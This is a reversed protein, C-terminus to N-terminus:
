DGKILIAIDAVNTGSPGTVVLSDLQKLIHYSDSNDIYSEIDLSQKEVEICSSSDVIGGAADSSGDIGDTGASLFTFNEGNKCVKQLMLAAAHQNRGGQGSGKVHVTCEGGFVMCQATSQIFKQYMREIMEEVDGLMLEQAVVVDLGLEQASKHAAQLAHTNSALIFHKVRPLATKPTEVLEGNVGRDIVDRITQPMQKLIDSEQLVRQVDFYTSKDAYLPASGISYLDNDIVDSVVLVAGSAQTNQALLGGKISSLHKRVSNIQSIDLGNELMLNTTEQLEQLTIPEKPIEMLASSGGSLLYIYLDEAGCEQMMSVLEQTADISKQTPIPHSGEVLKIYQLDENKNPAIVLGKYIQSGLIAEIEKAMTYAAKGSGFVYINKYLDLDYEYSDITLINAEFKCYEHMFKKPMSAELADSFIKQALVRHSM